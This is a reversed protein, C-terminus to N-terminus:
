RPPALRSAFYPMVLRGFREAEEDHPYGSLCFETCGIDIYEQLTDAVQQPNGVIMVGAGHRVTTIGAWLHKDLRYNDDATEASIARMRADAQSEAGMGTLRRAKLREVEPAILADAAQWAEEETERVLVQLRMGFQLEDARGLREARARIDEIDPKIREVRDGWLLYVDAHKAGVDRAASSMGGLYFPPYPRQRPRPRVVSGEVHVFEGEFDAPTDETWVRKMVTVAEDIAAYREDHGYFVGDATMEAQGGGAILNICLRGNSLQDFTSIMKAMVTPQILGPRAAVLMKLRETRASVMACSIWAEYCEPAVPVLAYEFGAAEAAQAVRTFLDLNPPKHNSPDGITSSDGYTPIFWGFRIRQDM